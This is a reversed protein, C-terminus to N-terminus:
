ENAAIQELITSLQRYLNRIDKPRMIGKTHNLDDSRDLRSYLMDIQSTSFLGTGDTADVGLLMELKGLLHFVTSTFLTGQTCPGPIMTGNYTLGRIPIVPQTRMREARDTLHELFLQFFSLLRGYIDIITEMVCAPLQDNPTRSTSPNGVLVSVIQVLEQASTMVYEALSYSGMFLPGERHIILELRLRTRNSQVMTSRLRLGYVINTLIAMAGSGDAGVDRYVIDKPDSSFKNEHIYYTPQRDIGFPLLSKRKKVRYNLSASTDVQRAPSAWSLSSQFTAQDALDLLTWPSSRLADGSAAQLLM